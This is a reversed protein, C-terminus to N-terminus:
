NQFMQALCFTPFLIESFLIESFLHRFVVRPLKFIHSIYLLIVRSMSRLFATIIAM